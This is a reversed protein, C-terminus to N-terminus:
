GRRRPRRWCFDLPDWLLPNSFDGGVPSLWYFDTARAPSVCFGVALVTVLALWRPFRICRTSSATRIVFAGLLAASVLRRMAM